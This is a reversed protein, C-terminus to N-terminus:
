PNRGAGSSPRSGARCGARFVVRRRALSERGGGGAGRGLEVARPWRRRPSDPRRVRRRSAPSPAGAEYGPSASVAKWARARGRRRALTEHNGDGASQGPRVAGTATEAAALSAATSAQAVGALAHGAEYGPSM